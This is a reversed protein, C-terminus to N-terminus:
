LTAIPHFRLVMRDLARIVNGPRWQGPEVVEIRGVRAAIATLVAEVEARAINQGVCAHIGAGFAMHGSPRREIRFSMADPGWRDPDTNAAALCCQIRTGEGIAVGAVETDHAATRGFVQVPSTLRLVEEFAPRALDPAARLRQYEDPNEALCWLANGIGTVTTDVGASLLSRVLLGAEEESIEGADAAEYITTALGGPRIRQRQCADAIWPIVKGGMGLAWDRLAGDPGSANFVMAGYDVLMRADSDILGVADSFALTPFAEALETVLEFSDRALLSDVLEEAYANFTERMQGAARPSLVRMMVRRTRAHEPPDRELIVSPPRWKASYRNDEMGVGRSSIFRAHDSFIEHTTAYQGCILVSYDPQHVLPGAARLAAHYGAPDLLVEPAWPDITLIPVGDPRAVPLHRHILTTM